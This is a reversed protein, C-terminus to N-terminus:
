AAKKAAEIAKENLRRDLIPSLWPAFRLLYYITRSYKDPFVHLKNRRVGSIM